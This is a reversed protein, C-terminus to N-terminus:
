GNDEVGTGGNKGERNGEGLEREGEKKEKCVKRYERKMIKYNEGEM